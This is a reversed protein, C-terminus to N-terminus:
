RAVRILYGGDIPRISGTRARVRVGPLRLDLGEAFVAGDEASVRGGEAGFALRAPVRVQLLGSSRDQAVAAGTVDVCTGGAFRFTAGQPYVAMGGHIAQPPVAARVSGGSLERVDFVVLTGPGRLIQDFLTRRAASAQASRTRAEELAQEYGHAARAARVLADDRSGGDFTLHAEVLADLHPARGSALLAKWGGALDLRGGWARPRTAGPGPGLPEIRDLLLALGWGVLRARVGAARAALDALGALPGPLPEPPRAPGSALASACRWGVYAPLGETMERWRELAIASEAEEVRRERRVLALAAAPSRLREAGEAAELLELLQRGEVALLAAQEAGAPELGAAARAPAPPGGADSAEDPVPPEARGPVAGWWASFLAGYLVAAIAFPPPLGAAGGGETAARAGLADAELFVAPTGGAPAVVTGDPGPTGRLWPHAGASAAEAVPLGARRADDWTLHRLGALPGGGRAAVERGGVRASALCLGAGGPLILGVPIAEPVWGPWVEGIAGPPRRGAGAAVWAEIWRASEEDPVFM